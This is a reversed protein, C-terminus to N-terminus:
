KLGALDKYADKYVKVAEDTNFDKLIAAQRKGTESSLASDKVWNYFRNEFTGEAEVNAKNFVPTYNAGGRFSFSDTVYLLHWGYDGACVKFTGAGSRIATQAAYEFEKIYSTDYASVTYGIYQSLVGTDTTYAYQLENVASMALYRDSTEAFMKEKAAEKFNVKGTAYVLKSYDIEKDDTTKTFDTTEYYKGFNIETANLADGANYNVHNGGGLVFNIYASFEALMDDIGLKEPILKYSGNENKEVKGNYSYLGVYRDLTEYKDKRTLNNEFFLYNRTDKGGDYYALKQAGEKDKNYEEANFSYEKEGNFWAERQDTTLINKLLKNRAAFYGSEDIIDNDRYGQLTKLEINQTSSFPLLINYVYGYTGYTGDIEQTDSETSPSYLIFKTDSIGGMATEFDSASAYEKEQKIFEINYKDQVYTYIADDGEGELESIIEEQQKEYKENFEEILVQELMSVYSDQVYTLEMVDTTEADKSSILYNTQLRGIFEAYAQRRYNRNTGEVPEYEDGANDLLYGDYGTYVGYNEPIYDEKLSDIGSPTARTGSGTYDDKKDEKIIDKELSDLTNNIIYCVNYKAKKVGDESVGNIIYEYKETESQKSKFEDLSLKGSKVGDELLSVTAYQTVVANSVLNDKILDFLAGASGVQDAYQYYVSYYATIMDRKIFVEENIASAYDGFKEKFSKNNAINVTAITQKIDEETNTVICGAFSAAGMVMAVAVAACIIKKSKM